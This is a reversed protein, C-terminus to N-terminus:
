PAPPTKQAGFTAVGDILSCRADLVHCLIDFVDEFRKDSYWGTISQRALAPDAVLVRVGYVRELERAVEPLPTAQFVLFQGLWDLRAPADAIPKPASLTGQVIRSTEGNRVDVRATGADLVVHGEVVFLRVDDDKTSLEFRTGLVVADGARTHVRFPHRPSKAVAFFAKGELSVERTRRADIRLRSRPALRVVSGDELAVTTTESPGAVIEHPQSVIGPQQKLYLLAGFAIIAIAAAAAMVGRWRVAARRTDGGASAAATRREAEKILTSAPPPTEPLRESDLRSATQAIAAIDRYYRENDPAANRWAQLEAEERDTTQGRLSRLILEDM